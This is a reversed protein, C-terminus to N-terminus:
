NISQNRGTNQMRSILGAYMEEYNKALAEEGNEYLNRQMSNLLFLNKRLEFSSTNGGSILFSAIENARAAVVKAMEVAKQKQDVKFLLNVTDPSSPDYHVAADPMRNLSLLLVSTAKEIEGKDILAQALSNLNSRHNLVQIAYDNTYYVSSDDLGRYKFKSIVLDYSKETNVLYDRDGRSNKVPLIRYVNGEQVSYPRLDLNMQAMSTPNLYVPREWNTTVLLDLFVLDRKELYNNLLKIQMQNVILNEMGKPIISKTLITKKDIDITITKSPIIIRDGDRLGPHNRALLQLYQKADISNIKL